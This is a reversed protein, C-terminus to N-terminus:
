RQVHSLRFANIAPDRYHSSREYNSDVFIRIKWKLTANIISLPQCVNEFSVVIPLQIKLALNHCRRRM